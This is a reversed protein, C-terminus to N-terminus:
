KKQKKKLKENLKELERKAEKDGAAVRKECEAIEAKLQQMQKELEKKSMPM